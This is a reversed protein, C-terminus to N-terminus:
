RQKGEEPKVTTFDNLSIDYGESEYTFRIEISGDVIKWEPVTMDDIGWKHNMSVLDQALLSAATRYSRPTNGVVGRGYEYKMGDAMAADLGRSCVMAVM